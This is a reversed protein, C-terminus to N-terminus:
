PPTTLEAWAINEKFKYPGEIGGRYDLTEEAIILVGEEGRRRYIYNYPSMIIYQNGNDVFRWITHAFGGHSYFEGNTLILDPMDAMTKSGSREWLLARVNRKGGEDIRYDVRLLYTEGVFLGECRDFDRFEPLLRERDQRWFEEVSEREEQSVPISFVTGDYDMWIGAIGGYMLQENFLRIGRWAETPWDSLACSDAIIGLVEDNFIMDFKELMEKENEISPRPIPYNLLKVIENRDGSRVAELFPTPIAGAILLERSTEGDTEATGSQPAPDEVGAESVQRTDEAQLEQEPDTVVTQPGEANANGNKQCFSLLSLCICLIFVHKPKKM